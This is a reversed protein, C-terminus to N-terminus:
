TKEQEFTDIDTQKVKKVFIENALDVLTETPAFEIVSKIKEILRQRNFVIVAKPM